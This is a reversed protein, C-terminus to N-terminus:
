FGPVQFHDPPLAILHLSAFLHFIVNNKLENGNHQTGEEQQNRCAAAEANQGERLQLKVFFCHIVCSSIIFQVTIASDVGPGIAILAEVKTPIFTAPTPPAATAVRPQTRGDQIM